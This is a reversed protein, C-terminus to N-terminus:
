PSQGQEVTGLRLERESVWLDAAKVAWVVVTPSVCGREAVLMLCLRTGIQFGAAAHEVRSFQKESSTM